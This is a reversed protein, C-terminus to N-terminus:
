NLMENPRNDQKKKGGPLRRSLRLEPLRKQKERSGRDLQKKNPKSSPMPLKRKKLSEPKKERDRLRKRSLKSEPKNKLEKLRMSDLKNQGKPLKKKLRVNQQQLKQM